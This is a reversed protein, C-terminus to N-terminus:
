RRVSEVAGREVRRGDRAVVRIRYLGTRLGRGGVRVMHAGAARRRVSGRRVVRRGRLVEVRVRAARSLAYRVTLPVQGFSARSASLTRLLGCSPPREIRPGRRVADGRREVTLRRLSVGDGARATLRVVYDGAPSPAGDEGRGDWVVDGPAILRRAIITQAASLTEAVVSTAGGFSARAVGQTATLRAQGIVSRCPEADTAPPEPLPGFPEKVPVGQERRLPVTLTAPDVASVVIESGASESGLPAVKQTDAVGLLVGLRHGAPLRYATPWVEIAMRYPRGPVVRQPNLHTHFLDPKTPDEARHSARLWGRGVLKTAGDPAVDVVRATWDADTGTTRATFRVALPGTIATPQDLPAGLFAATFPALRQDLADHLTPDGADHAISTGGTVELPVAPVVAIGPDACARPQLAGGSVWPGTPPGGQPCLALEQADGDPVWRDYRRFGSGEGQDFLLVRPISALALSRAPGPRTRLHADFWRTAARGFLAQDALHGDAGMVLAKEASRVARFTRPAGRAYIDHWGSLILTPVEIRPAEEQLSREDWFADATQHATAQQLVTTRRGLSDLMRPLVDEAGADRNLRSLPIGTFLLGLAVADTALTGGPYVVDRYADNYTSGAAIAALHPPRLAATRAALIAGYSYGMMAVQGDSFGQRATWEVVDAGDRIERHCLFCFDGSSVGTGRVDVLLTAYGAATLDGLAGADRALGQAGSYPTMELVTPRRESGPPLRLTGRLVTGDSVPIEVREVRPEQARAGAPVALTSVALAVAVALRRLRKSPLVRHRYGVAARRVAV